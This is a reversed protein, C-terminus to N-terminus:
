RSQELVKILENAPAYGPVMQGSDFIINPTGNVGFLEAQQMQETVPNECTKAAVPKNLMAQDMASVPDDSCWVSVAKQYSPSGVGARPYAMYRVEIGAENLAPIEQHLKRCYPCDIDTFVTVAHKRTGKAPYVIMSKADLDKLANKRQANMATETLNERTDLDIISGSVLYKADETMYVIKSGLHIQYVGPIQSKEISPLPAGPMLQQLKKKILAEDALVTASVTMMSLGLLLSKFRTTNHYKM